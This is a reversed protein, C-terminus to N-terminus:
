VGCVSLDGATAMSCGYVSLPNAMDGVYTWQGVNVLM